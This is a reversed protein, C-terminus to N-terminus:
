RLTESLVLYDMGSREMSTQLEKLMADDAQDFAEIIGGVREGSIVLKKAFRSLSPHRSIELLVTLSVPHLIAVLYAFYQTGFAVLSHDRFARCVYRSPLLAAPDVEALQDFVNELLEPPLDLVRFPANADARRQVRTSVM